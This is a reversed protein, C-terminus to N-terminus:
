SIAIRRTHKKAEETKPVHLELVGSDLKAKAKTADVGSPLPITRSFRGYRFESRYFSKKKEEKTDRTEGRITLGGDILEIELDDKKLGPVQARVVVEDDSETLEIPPSLPEFDLSRPWTWDDFMREIERRLPTLPSESDRRALLAM